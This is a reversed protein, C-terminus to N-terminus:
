RSKKTVPLRWEKRVRALQEHTNTTLWVGTHRYGYLRGQAAAKPFLDRELMFKREGPMLRFAEPSFIYHGNSAWQSPATEPSPKEVFGLLRDGDLRAIGYPRVDEVKHLSITIVAQHRRHFDRLKRFDVDALDDVNMVIFEEVFDKRDVLRMWGGTGLPEKEVVYKIRIGEYEDGFFAQVKEALHGIALYTTTIGARKLLLLAHEALCRGDIDVLPKPTEHTLPRLRTGLGGALIVATRL